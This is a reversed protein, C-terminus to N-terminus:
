QTAQREAYILRNSVSPLPKLEQISQGSNGGRGDELESPTHTDVTERNTHTTAEELTGMPPEAPQRRPRVRDTLLSLSVCLRGAM